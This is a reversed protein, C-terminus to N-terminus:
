PPTLVADGAAREGSGSGRQEGSSRDAPVREARAVRPSPRGVLLCCWIATIWIGCALWVHAWVLGAPLKAEYQVLGVIGQAGLMVCLAASWKRLAPEGGRRGVLWWLFIAAFGLIAGLEGHRQVFFELSERGLVTLRNIKQGTAGGADPAAATAATGAAVVITALLLVVRGARVIGRDPNRPRRGPAYMSRWLVVAAGLIVLMSLCFHAMVWGYDLKGLVTLGGLIAQAIVGLPLLLSYWVLDRRYPQRRLAALWTVGAILVTPITLVRNGFEIIAHGRLPPYIHGYCRPWTPCGLGSGTLRVLEGTLVIVTMMVLAAGALVTFQHPTVRFDRVRRITSESGGM